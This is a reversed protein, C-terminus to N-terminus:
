PAFRRENRPTEIRRQRCGTFDASRGPQLALAAIRNVQAGNSVYRNDERWSSEEAYRLLNAGAIPHHIGIEARRLRSFYEEAMGTCAGDLSYAEQHNIRKVEFRVHLNTGRRRKAPTFSRVRPLAPASSHLPKAKRISHRRSRIAATSGPDRCCGQAQQKPEPGFSSGPSIRTSRSAECLRRLSRSGGSGRALTTNRGRGADAGAKRQRM